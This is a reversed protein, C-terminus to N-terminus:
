ASLRWYSQLGGCAAKNNELKFADSRSFPDFLFLYALRTYLFGTVHIVASIWRVNQVVADVFRKVHRM